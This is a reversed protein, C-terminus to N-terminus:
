DAKTSTLFVSVANFMCNGDGVIPVFRAGEEFGPGLRKSNEPIELWKELMLRHDEEMYTETEPPIGAERLFAEEQATSVLPPEYYTGGEALMEIKTRLNEFSQM